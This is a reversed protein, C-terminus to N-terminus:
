SVVLFIVALVWSIGEEQIIAHGTSTLNLCRLRVIVTASKVMLVMLVTNQWQSTAIKRKSALSLVNTMLHLKVLPTSTVFPNLGFKGEGKRKARLKTLNKILLINSVKCKEILAQDYNSGCKEYQVPVNSSAAQAQYNLLSLLTLLFRM